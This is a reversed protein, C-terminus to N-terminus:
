YVGGIFTNQKLEIKIKQLQNKVQDCDSKFALLLRFAVEDYYEISHLKNHNAGECKANEDFPLYVGNIADDIDIKCENLVLRSLDANEKAWKRNENQPVIHHAACGKKETEGAAKMNKRLKTTKSKLLLLAESEGGVQGDWDEGYDAPECKVQHSEIKGTAPDRWIPGTYGTQRCQEQQKAKAAGILAGGGAIAGLWGFGSEKARDGATALGSSLLSVSLFLCLRRKM